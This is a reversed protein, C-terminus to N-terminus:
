ILSLFHELLPRGTIDTQKPDLREPHWQVGIVPLSAHRFAEICNDRPCWQVPILQSGLRNVAQHHASNVVAHSGYLPYLFSDPAIVTDHYQDADIYRHSDATSMNQFLTGGFGVNILQMGKCIGLVPLKMFLAYELSQFQIIDLETDIDRSGNNREGYFAPTIDGGGPFIVADCGSLEGVVLTTLYDTRLTDLFREYRATDKKRGVIAIKM